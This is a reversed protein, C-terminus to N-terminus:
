AAKGLQKLHTKIKNIIQDSTLGFKEYLQQYPASAGFHDLTCILGNDGVYRDWGFSTAAEIAVRIGTQGLVQRRYAAPQQDFLRWCPLSVLAVAYGMAELQTKTELALGVESGTALLTIQREKHPEHVV